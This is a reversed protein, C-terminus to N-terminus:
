SLAGSHKQLVRLLDAHLEAFQMNQEAAKGISEVAAILHDHMAYNGAPEQFWKPQRVPGSKNLENTKSILAGAAETWASSASGGHAIMKGEGNRLAWYTNRAEGEKKCVLDQGYHARVWSPVNEIQGVRM